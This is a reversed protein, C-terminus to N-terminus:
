FATPPSRFHHNRPDVEPIYPAIDEQVVLPFVRRVSLDNVREAEVPRVMFLGGSDFFVSKSMKSAKSIHWTVDGPGVYPRRSATSLALVGTAVLLTAAVLPWRNIQLASKM